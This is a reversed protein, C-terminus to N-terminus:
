VIRFQMSGQEFVLCSQNAKYRSYDEKNIYPGGHIKFDKGAEWDKEVQAITKYQRGYAPGVYLPFHFSM